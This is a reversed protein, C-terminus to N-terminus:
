TKVREAKVYPAVPLLDVRDAFALFARAGVVQFNYPGEKILRGFRTPDPEVNANHYDNWILWPLTTSYTFSYEGTEKNAVVGGDSSAEGRGTRDMVTPAIPISYSISDALKVFTARSAGSWVPIEALVAELWAMLAQAIMDSMHAHLASQYAAVDIRPISFQATFKM